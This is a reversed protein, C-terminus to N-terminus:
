KSNALMVILRHQIFDNLLSLGWNAAIVNGEDNKDVKSSESWNHARILEMWISYLVRLEKEGIQSLIIQANQATSRDDPYDDDHGPLVIRASLIARSMYVMAEKLDAYAPDNMIKDKKSKLVPMGPVSNVMTQMKRFSWAEVTEFGLEKFLCILLKRQPRFKSIKVEMTEGSITVEATKAKFNPDVTMASFPDPFDFPEINFNLPM